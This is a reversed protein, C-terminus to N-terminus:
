FPAFARIADIFNGPVAPFPDVVPILGFLMLLARSLVRFTRGFPLALNQPTRAPLDLSWKYTDKSTDFTGRRDSIFRGSETASLIRLLRKLYAVEQGAHYLRNM